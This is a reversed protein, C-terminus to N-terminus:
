AKQGQSLAQDKMSAQLAAMLDPVNQGPDEESEDEGGKQQQKEGGGEALIKEVAASRLEMAENKYADHKFEDSAIQGLLQKFLDVAAEPVDIDTHAKETRGPERIETVMPLQRLLLVDDEGVHLACLKWSSARKWLVVAASDYGLAKVFTAMVDLGTTSKKKPPSYRVYYTGTAFDLPLEYCPQYDLVVLEDSASGDEIKAYETDSLPRYTGDPMEVGYIKSAPPYSFGITATKEKGAITKTVEAITPLNACRETRDIPLNHCSCIQKIGQEREDSWAKAISVPFTTLGIKVSGSWMSRPSSM